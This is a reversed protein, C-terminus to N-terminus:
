DNSRRMVDREHEAQKYTEDARDKRHWDRQYRKDRQKRAAVLRQKNLFSQKWPHQRVVRQVAVAPASKVNLTESM